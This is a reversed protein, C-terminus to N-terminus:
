PCSGNVFRTMEASLPKLSQTFEEFVPEVNDWERLTAMEELQTALIASERAGLHTLAGKISHSSLRLEKDNKASIAKEINAVMSDRDKLFVKILDCLLQHDGGVTEFAREWDVLRDSNPTGGNSNAQVTSRFGTQRDILEYLDTARFPKAIYEDMGAALCRKRDAASAHATLAIIPIRSNTESQLKRIEATAEFGDVEPMQVDMLVVDIPHQQFKEIAEQGNIALVV